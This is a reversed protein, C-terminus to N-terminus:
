RVNVRVTQARKGDVVIVLDVEGRNDLSNPVRINIQDLGVFGPAQSAYEVPITVGGIECTVNAQNTRNRVGTGYLEFFISEAAPDFDIARTVARNTAADISFLSERTQAAGRVRIAFGAAAGIGNANGTFLGPAVAGVRVTGSSTEGLSNRVILTATGDATGTPLLANVQGPGAFFLSAPREAGQSDRVTVTTGALTTPLPFVGPPAPATATALSVGFVSVISDRAVDANAVYSAASVTAATTHTRWRYMGRGHTAAILNGTANHYRLMFVALQPM